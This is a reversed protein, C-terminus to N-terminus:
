KNVDEVAPEPTAPTEAPKEETATPTEEVVPAPEVPAAPAPAGAAKKEAIQSLAVALGRMPYTLMGLLRGILVEKSPLMAMEIFADKAVFKGDLWAGFFQLAQNKKAFEYLKKAIAYPDNSGLVVGVSGNMGYVDVGDYKLDKVTIDVLSKKAILYESDMVRLARKLEQVQAVSLGKEGERAFTTFISITSKPFKEKLKKVEQNKQVRTKM